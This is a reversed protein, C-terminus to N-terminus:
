AAGRWCIGGTAGLLVLAVRTLLVNGAGFIGACWASVNVCGPRVIGHCYVHSRIEGELMDVCRRAFM